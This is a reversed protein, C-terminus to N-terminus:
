SVPAEDEPLKGTVTINTEPPNESVEMDTMDSTEITICMDKREIVILIIIISIVTWLCAITFLAAEPVMFILIVYFVAICFLLIAAFAEKAKKWM